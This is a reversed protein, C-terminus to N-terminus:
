GHLLIQGLITPRALCSKPRGCNARRGCYTGFSAFLTPLQISVHKPLDCVIALLSCHLMHPTNRSVHQGPLTQKAALAADLAARQAETLFSSSLASDSHHGNAEEELAALEAKTRM